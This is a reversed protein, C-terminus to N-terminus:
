KEGLGLKQRLELVREYKETLEIFKKSDEVSQNPNLDPHYKKVALRYGSKIQKMTADRSLSFIELGELYEVFDRKRDRNIDVQVFDKVIFDEADDVHDSRKNNKSHVFYGLCIRSLNFSFQQLRARFVFCVILLVFLISATYLLLTPERSDTEQGSKERLRLALDNLSKSAALDSLEKIFPQTSSPDLLELQDLRILALDLNKDKILQALEQRLLQIYKNRLVIETESYESLHGRVSEFSVGLNKPELLQTSLESVVRYTEPSKNKLALKSVCEVAETTRSQSLLSQASALILDKYKQLLIQSSINQLAAFQVFSKCSPNSASDALIQQSILILEQDLKLDEPVNTTEFFEKIQSIKQLDNLVVADEVIQGLASKIGSSLFHMPKILNQSSWEPDAFFLNLLASSLLNAQNLTLAKFSSTWDFNKLYQQLLFLSKSSRVIYRGWSIEIKDNRRFLSELFASELQLEEFRPCSELYAALEAATIQDIEESNLFSQNLLWPGLNIESLIAEQGRYTVLLNAQDIPKTSFDKFKLGCYSYNEAQLSGFTLFFIATLLVRFVFLKKYIPSHNM